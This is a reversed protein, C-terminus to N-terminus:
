KEIKKIIKKNSLIGSNDEAKTIVDKLIPDPKIVVKGKDKGNSLKEGGFYEM